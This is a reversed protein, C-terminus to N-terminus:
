VVADRIDDLIWVGPSTNMQASRLNRSCSSIGLQTWCYETSTGLVCVRKHLNDGHDSKNPDHGYFHLLSGIQRQDVNISDRDGVVTRRCRVLSGDVTGLDTEGSGELLMRITIANWVTLQHTKQKQTIVHNGPVSKRLDVPISGRMAERFGTTPVM